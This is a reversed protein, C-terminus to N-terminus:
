LFRIHTPLPLNKGQGDFTINEAKNWGTYTLQYHHTRVDVDAVLSPFGNQEEATNSMFFFWKRKKTDHEEGDITFELWFPNRVVYISNNYEVCHASALNRYMYSPLRENQNRWANRIHFFEELDTRESPLNQSKHGEIYWYHQDIGHQLAFDYEKKARNWASSNLLANIPDDQLFIGLKM